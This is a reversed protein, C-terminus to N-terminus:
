GANEQNLSSTDNGSVTRATGNGTTGIQMGDGSRSTVDPLLEELEEQTTGEPLPELGLTSLVYNVTDVTKPMMGVSTIRQFYKSIEELSEEALNEYDVKAMRRTSWGNLEYIQRVLDNNVVQMIKKLYSEIANGTLSNKVGALAFSGVNTNGLLLVDASMGIFILGRYYEKIETLDYGRKGDAALLELSFLPVRTESDVTSPLVVGAQSGQQLNRVINKMNEFIVKQDPSADASMYQAPVKLLPVGTLEKQVGQAELEEIASLYKYPLYVNRLPSVGYPNDKTDGATFLLFKSRPIVITNGRSSFRNMSDSVITQKVGKIDNGDESFIFKDISTQRRISIKKPAILEDDFLSGSAKNRKRYVKEAVSFGYTTITLADQIVDEFPHDMDEFLMEGLIEAQRKEEDTANKPAVIRYRAKAIMSSYLTIAANVAPHYSMQKYTKINNPFDLERKLEEAPIGSFLNLGSSSIEGLRFREPQDKPNLAKQLPEVNSKSAM